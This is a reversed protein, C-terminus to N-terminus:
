AAGTGEHAASVYDGNMAHAYREISRALIVKGGSAIVRDFFHGYITAFELPALRHCVGTKAFASHPKGACAALCTRDVTMRAIDSCFLVGCGGVVERWHLVPAARSAGTGGAPRAQSAGADVAPM